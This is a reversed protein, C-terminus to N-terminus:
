LYISLCITAPTDNFKEYM